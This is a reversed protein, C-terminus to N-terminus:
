GRSAAVISISCCGSGWFLRADTDLMTTTRLLHFHTAASARRKGLLLQRRGAGFADVSRWHM